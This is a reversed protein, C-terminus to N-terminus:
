SGVARRHAEGTGDDDSAAIGKETTKQASKRAGETAAEAAIQADQATRGSTWTGPEGLDITRVTRHAKPKTVYTPLTVPLPDWLTGAPEGSAIAAQLLAVPIGITDEQELEAVRHGDVDVVEAVDVVEVEEVPEAETRAAPAGVVTASEHRVQTRCLVLYVVTLGVPIAVSWWPVVALYALVVVVVDCLLLGTLLRRRRRAAARAAQRRAVTRTRSVVPAVPTPRGQGTPRTVTATATPAAPRTTVVRRTSTSRTPTVVLRTDRENVPERHALVRIATSFRDISRTRAVEDHQKLAKPILFVAWAIALVVFIIGSLDVGRLNFARLGRNGCSFRHTAHSSM